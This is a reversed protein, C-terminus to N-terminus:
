LERDPASATTIGTETTGPTTIDGWTFSRLSHAYMMWHDGVIAARDKGNAAGVCAFIPVLHDPSPHAIRANPFTSWSMVTDVRRKQVAAYLEALQKGKAEALMAAKEEESADAYRPDTAVSAEVERLAAEIRDRTANETIGDSFPAVFKLTQNKVSPQGMTHFANHSAQGSGMILIGEKRLPALSEGIQIHHLPDWSVDISIQIVPIDAEPYMLSLPVFAGHDINRKTDLHAPIKYPGDELLSKIRQALKVSGPCPYQYSYLRRPFGGFDYYLSPYKDQATISVRKNNTIYHASVCVIAKPRRSGVLNLQKALNQYWKNAPTGIGVDNLIPGFTEHVEMLLVPAAHSLFLVPMEPVENQDGSEINTTDDSTHLTIKAELEAASM